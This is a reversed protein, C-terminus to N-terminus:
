GRRPLHVTFTTGRASSSDVVIRGGHAHVIREAIYLGLGLSDLPGRAVASARAERGKLPHFIGPLRAAPIAVGWNHIAITVADAGDATNGAVDGGADGGTAAGSPEGTTAGGGIAVTVPTGPTGHEVANGILNTLAQGIRVADWAAQPAGRADLTLTRDPHAARLEDMADHVVTGVSVDARVIPIGGGLRSRTFDLLDGVLRLTRSASGAIRATLTAAPEPLAQTEVLFQASTLIAGLPTRLDHGLIALFM